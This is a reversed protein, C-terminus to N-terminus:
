FLALSSPSVSLTKSLPIHSQLVRNEYITENQFDIFNVAYFLKYMYSNFYELKQKNNYLKTKYKAKFLFHNQIREELISCQEVATSIM